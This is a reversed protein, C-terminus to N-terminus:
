LGEGEESKIPRLHANKVISQLLEAPCSPNLGVLCYGLAYYGLARKGERLFYAVKNKMSETCKGEEETRMRHTLIM